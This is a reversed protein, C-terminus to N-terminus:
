ASVRRFVFIGWKLRGARGADVWHQLGLKMRDIYDRECVRLLDTERRLVEERVRAYHKPLQPSLDIWAEEKWGLRAATERYFGPSGMSALHIRELVPKLLEADADDSQMPDTFIFRGGPKLVRDVERLVTERRGSHLLADQSWVADFDRDDFPLEEFSGDVVTIATALGARRNLERNRLNQVESLNLCTLRCGVRRALFRASGGYGSGIDLLSSEPGADPLASAMREVTRRSADFISEGPHEYIGIHIDEGGWVTEYFRDASSSNYYDRTVREVDPHATNM